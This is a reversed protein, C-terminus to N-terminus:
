AVGDKKPRYIHTSTGYVAAAGEMLSESLTPHPHITMDMDSALAGMEIALAGEAILEGAGQGVIGVGLIQETEPDTIIKTVGEIRNLTTARGSAAWPFRSVTVKRDQAKAETETIGCWAIEPDTFIVAPIAQPEFAAPHGAIVEAAVRGEASAKHALMAGGVIDGIAFITPEATRCQEDVEIFGHDNVVVNTNKLGLGSSNPRRGVCVLVKDFIRKSKETDGELSVAIGNKQDKMEGVKTNLLIEEFEEELRKALPRVLDRDAGPLLGDTAEVVTVKSGLASYVSGLELGIYGGGIVLLSEPISELELASTSNMIRRSDIMPGLMTPRSGAAVIAYDFKLFDETIDSEFIALTNPDEFHARGRVFNVKRATSLQGLGGTMKAVVERTAERVRDLDIRPEEYHLGFHAAERAATLTHAVHLLAKSPICGRYLCTGGPNEEVDILTVELGLDAAMFAAAYGGPGGGLVAVQTKLTDAM